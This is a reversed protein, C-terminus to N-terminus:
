ELKSWRLDSENRCAQCDCDSRYTHEVETIYFEKPDFQKIVRHQIDRDTVEGTEPDFTAEGELVSEILVGGPHAQYEFEQELRANIQVAAEETLKCELLMVLHGDRNTTQASVVEGIVDSSDFNQTIVAHKENLQETMDRMCNDTFVDGDPWVKPMEITVTKTKM